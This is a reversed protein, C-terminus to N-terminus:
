PLPAQPPSQPALGELPTDLGIAIFPAWYYPHPQKDRLARMAADLAAARGQGSLLRRYYDEMLERTVEDNVKWLSMVITQAGAVGLARRLGYVGQGLKIDGQGTDCASLVVLQTGWLNMGSLELATALSDQLHTPQSATSRAGALVLGSRLLPNPPLNRPGPDAVEGFHGVARSGKSAKSATTDDLFFGHTAVHLIGPAPLKLLAQKSADAGLLLRAQPLMRQISLAEERTAPLPAWPQSALEASRSSFFGDLALSREASALTTESTSAAPAGDFDPDALIVASHAPLSNESRPLLDKGSTRYNLHFTDALFRQGDHLAAFPVLSLQGDTSLSLRRVSGLAPLLPKFALRHLEQSARQWSAARRVLAERLRHIAAHLREAPGLDVVSIRGDARLVFALYRLEGPPQVELTGPKPVLPRDEYAVFEVLASDKPLAQAVRDVIQDPPPLARLARLPASRQMLETELADGQDALEQLRRQHEAPDRKGAGALALEAYETRLARLREFTARDEPGLDRYIARSTHALEEASRGKLLLAASLALRRVQADGPSARALAYLREEDGRLLQLFDALREESFTLSEQRLRAEAHTFAQEFLAYAEAPRGQALGLLGLERRAAMALTPGSTAEERIALARELPPRAREYLGQSRYLRALNTLIHFVALHSKGGTEEMITLARQYLTEAQAYRGQKEYLAALQDLMQAVYPHDKGYSKERLAVAREQLPEARTYLGQKLYVKALNHLSYPVMDQDPTPAAESIALAREFAAEARAYSGQNLYLTGLHNLPEALAPHEKGLAAEQIALARLYLPEAETYRGQIYLILGLTSLWEATEPHDKGFAAEHIALARRVLPEPKSTYGQNVYIAYLTDLVPLLKPDMPGFAAELIALARLLHEEARSPEQQWTVKSLQRLSEAVQPHTSGLVEERLALSREAEAKAEPRKREAMLKQSAELAREAEELRPDVPAPAQADVPLAAKDATACGACWLALVATWTFAGQMRANM